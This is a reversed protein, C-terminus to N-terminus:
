EVSDHPVLYLHQTYVTGAGEITIPEGEAQDFWAYWGQEAPSILEFANIRGDEETVIVVGPGPPGYHYGMGAVRESIRAYHQLAPNAAALVEYHPELLVPRQGEVVSSRETVYIHQTYVAGLPEITTPQGEAQDFWPQWGASEPVILEYAAVIGDHGVALTLHPGAVGHHVGMEPVWGEHLPQYMTLKPNISTLTTLNRAYERAGNNDSSNCASLALTLTCLWLTLKRSHHSTPM